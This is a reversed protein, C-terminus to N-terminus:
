KTYLVGRIAEVAIQNQAEAEALIADDGQEEVEMPVTGLM